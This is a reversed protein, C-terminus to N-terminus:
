KLSTGQFILDTLILTIQNDTSSVEVSNLTCNVHDTSPSTTNEAVGLGKRKFSIQKLWCTRECFGLYM